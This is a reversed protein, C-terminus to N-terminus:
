AAVWGEGSGRPPRSSTRGPSATSTTRTPPRPTTAATSPARTRACASSASYRSSTRHPTEETERAALGGGVARHRDREREEDKEDGPDDGRPRAQEGADVVALDGVLDGRRARQGAVDDADQGRLPGPQVRRGGAGRGVRRLDLLVDPADVDRELLQAGGLRLRQARQEALRAERQLALGRLDRGRGVRDDAPLPEVEADVRLEGVLD